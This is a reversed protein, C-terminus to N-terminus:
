KKTPLVDFPATLRYDSEAGSFDYTGHWMYSPFLVVMGAQPHVIREVVEAAGLQLPSEGFKIAGAHSNKSESSDQTMVNPLSIYCSSSIWGAPHVHNVHFGQPKLKVSWSGSFEFGGSNRGLLPHGPQAKLGSIFEEVVQALSAKLEQIETVPQNLLKAATQTGNRLTQELPAAATNHQSLLVVELASLFEPLSNYGSPVPLSAIHIFNEYDCLWSYKEDGLLRWVLSQLAWSLQCEDDYDLLKAVVEQAADYEAQILYLKVLAHGADKSFEAELSRQFRLQARATDGLDALSQGHMFLLQPHGGFKEISTKMLQETQEIYGARFLQAGYSLRLQLNDPLSNIAHLYSVGFESRQDSEWLLENLLEHLLHAGPDKALASRLLSIASATNGTEHTANALSQIIEPKQPALEYAKSYHALALDLKGQLHYNLGINHYALVYDPVANLARLYFQEANEYQQLARYCDALGTNLSADDPHQALLEHYIKIAAECRQQASLCIALNRKAQIFETQQSIAVRYHKEAQQFDQRSQYLNALNNHAQPQAPNLELTQLFFDKALEFRNQGKYALALLHPIDSNSPAQKLLPLLKAIATECDGRQILQLASALITHLTNNTPRAM